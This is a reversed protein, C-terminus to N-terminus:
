CLNRKSRSIMKKMGLRLEYWTFVVHSGFRCGWQGQRGILVRRAARESVFFDGKEGRRDLAARQGAGFASEDLLEFRSERRQMAHLVSM